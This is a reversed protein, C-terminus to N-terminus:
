GPIHTALSSVLQLFFVDIFGTGDLVRILIRRPALEVTRYVLQGQRGDLSEVKGCRDTLQM